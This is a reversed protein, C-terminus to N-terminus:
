LSDTSDLAQRLVAAVRLLRGACELLPAEWGLPAYEAADLLLHALTKVEECVGDAAQVVSAEWWYELLWDPHWPRRLLWGQRQAYGALSEAEAGVLAIAAAVALSREHHLLVALSDCLTDLARLTWFVDSIQQRTKQLRVQLLFFLSERATQSSLDEASM